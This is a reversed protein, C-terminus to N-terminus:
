HDTEDGESEILTQQEADASTEGEGLEEDGVESEHNGVELQRDAQLKGQIAVFPMLLNELAFASSKQGRWLSESLLIFAFTAIMLVLAAIIVQKLKKGTLAALRLHKKAAREARLKESKAASTTSSDKGGGMAMADVVRVACDAAHEAKGIVQGSPRKSMAQVILTGYELSKEVAEFSVKAESARVIAEELQVMFADFASRAVKVLYLLSGCFTLVSFVYAEDFYVAGGTWLIMVFMLVLNSMMFARTGYIYVYSLFGRQWRVVFDLMQLYYCSMYVLQVSYHILVIWTPISFPEILVAGNSHSFIAYLHLPLALLVLFCSHAKAGEWGASLHLFPNERQADYTSSMDLLMVISAYSDVIEAISKGREEALHGLVPIWVPLRTEAGGRIQLWLSRGGVLMIFMVLALALVISFVLYAIAPPRTEDESPLVCKGFGLLSAQRPLLATEQLDKNKCTSRFCRETRNKSVFSANTLDCLDSFCGKPLGFLPKKYSKGKFFSKCSSVMSTDLKSALINPEVDAETLVQYAFSAEMLWLADHNQLWAATNEDDEDYSFFVGLQPLGSYAGLTLGSVMDRPLGLVIASSTSMLMHDNSFPEAFTNGFAILPAGSQILATCDGGATRATDCIAEFSADWQTTGSTVLSYYARPFEALSTTDADNGDSVLDKKAAVLYSDLQEYCIQFTVAGVVTAVLSCMRVATTLKPQPRETLSYLSLNSKISQESGHFVQGSTAPGVRAM